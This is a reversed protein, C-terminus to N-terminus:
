RPSPEPLPEMRVAAEPPDQHRLMDDLDEIKDTLM